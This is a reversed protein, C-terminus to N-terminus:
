DATDPPCRITYPAAGGERDCATGSDVKEVDASNETQSAIFDAIERVAPFSLEFDSVEQGEIIQHIADLLSGAMFLENELQRCRKCEKM